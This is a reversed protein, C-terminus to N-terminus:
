SSEKGHRIKVVNYGANTILKAIKKHSLTEGPKLDISVVKTNLNVEIAEVAEQKGFVKELSRACFDCVLGNVDVYIKEGASAVSAFGLMVIILFLSIKKM